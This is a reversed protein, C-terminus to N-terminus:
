VCVCVCLCGQKSSYAGCTTVWVYGAGTLGLNQAYKLVAHGDISIGFVAFYRAGTKKVTALMEPVETTSGKAFMVTGLISINYKAAEKVFTTMASYAYVDSSGVVAAHTWKSYAFFRAMYVAEQAVSYITRTFLPYLNKDTFITSTSGYAIM